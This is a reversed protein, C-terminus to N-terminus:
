YKKLDEEKLSERFKKLGLAGEAINSIKNKSYFEKM